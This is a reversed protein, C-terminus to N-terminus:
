RRQHWGLSRLANYGYWQIYWHDTTLMRDLIPPGAGRQGRRGLAAYAQCVVNPHGDHILALLDNFTEPARSVAMARALYYREVVWPSELLRRYQPFDSIELKERHILRLAAVRRPWHDSELAQEVGPTAVEVHRGLMPLLLVIGLSLCIGCRWGIRAPAKAFRGALRGIFGDVMVFLLIPFGVLLGAFTLRRLPAHRDGAESFRELWVKPDKLFARPDTEIRDGWRSTLFLRGESFHVLMDAHPDGPAEVIDHNALVLGWRQPLGPNPSQTFRWTSVSKQNFSKFAQAAYLNYRYYFDNVVRGAANSLLLHDRITSFLRQDLQTAWIGTLLVLTLLPLAWLRGAPLDAAKRKLSAMLVAAPVGAAFLTPYLAWGRANAAVVLAGWAAAAVWLLWRRPAFLRQWLYLIGWTTLALVAGVSLTYFLGGWVATSILSLSEAAPGAPIAMWGAAQIASVSQQLELNSRRVFFTAILQAIGLGALLPLASRGRIIFPPM